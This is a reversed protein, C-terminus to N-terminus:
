KPLRLVFQRLLGILGKTRGRYPPRFLATMALRRQVMVGRKKSFNVFGDFGHYHGMGSPGVGGFPLNHQGLHYLCDNI